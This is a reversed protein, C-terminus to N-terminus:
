KYKLWDYIRILRRFDSAYKSSFVDKHNTYYEKLFNQLDDVNINNEEMLALKYLSKEEKHSNIIDNVTKGSIQNSYKIRDKKVTNSLLDDFNNKLLKNLKEPFECDSSKLYKYIPLNNANSSILGPLTNSIIFNPEFNGNDFIIDLYLDKASIGQYGTKSFDNKLGLGLVFKLDELNDINEFDCNAVNLTENAKSTLVLNYVSDQLRKLISIPIKNEIKLIANFLIKFDSIKVKTMELYKNDDFYINTPSIEDIDENSPNWEIFILCDKLKKLNEPSLCTSIDKLINQINNDSLSYGIFIVPHEMFLTLIKAALYKSKEEFKKYDKEDIIISEPKTCCGHIKYIEGIGQLNSFILEEQGIFVKYDKVLNELLTDYNTTIIGAINKESIRKFIEIEETLNINNFNSNRKIFDSIEIKLPSVNNNISDMYNNIINEFKSDTYWKKILDKEILTAVRQLKNEEPVENKAISIYKRFALESDNVRNSIELLLDEWNPLNLYRRSFGSGIFLIPNSDCNNLLTSIKNEM